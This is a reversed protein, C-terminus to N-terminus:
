FLRALRALSDPLFATCSLLNPLKFKSALLESHKPEQASFLKRINDQVNIKSKQNLRDNILHVIILVLCTDLLSPCLSTQRKHTPTKSTEGQYIPTKASALNEKCCGAQYITQSEIKLSIFQASYEWLYLGKHLMVIRLQFVNSSALSASSAIYLMSRYRKQPRSSSTSNALPSRLLIYNKM